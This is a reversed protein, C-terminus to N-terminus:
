ASLYVVNYASINFSGTVGILYKAGLIHSNTGSWIFCQPDNLLNVCKILDQDGLSQGQRSHLFYIVCTPKM